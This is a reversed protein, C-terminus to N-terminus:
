ICIEAAFCLMRGLAESPCLAAACCTLQSSGDVSQLTGDGGVLDAPPATRISLPPSLPGPVTETVTLRAPGPQRAARLGPSCHHHLPAPSSAIRPHLSARLADDGCRRGGELTRPGSLVSARV